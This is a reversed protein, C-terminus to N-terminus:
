PNFKIMSGFLRNGQQIKKILDSRGNLTSMYQRFIMDSLNTHVTLLTLSIQNKGRGGDVSIQYIGSGVLRLASGKNVVTKSAPTQLMHNPGPGWKWPQPVRPAPAQVGISPARQFVRGYRACGEQIIPFLFFCGAENLVHPTFDSYTHYVDRGIQRMGGVCDYFSRRVAYKDPKKVSKAIRDHERMEREALDMLRAAADSKSFLKRVEKCWDHYDLM